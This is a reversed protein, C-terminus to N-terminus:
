EGGRRDYLGPRLPHEDDMAGCVPQPFGAWRLLADQEAEHNLAEIHEVRVNHPWCTAFREAMGYYEDWAAGAAEQRTPRDFKPLARVWMPCPPVTGVKLPYASFHDHKLRCHGAVQDMRDRRVVIVHADYYTVLKPIYSVWWAAVNGLYGEPRALLALVVRALGAADPSWPLFCWGEERWVYSDRQARLLNLLSGTGCSGMGAGFVLQKGAIM